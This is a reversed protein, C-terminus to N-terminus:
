ESVEYVDGTIRVRYLCTYDAGHNTVARVVVDQVAIGMESLNNEIAHGQVYNSHNIDYHFRSILVYTNDMAKGRTRSEHQEPAFIKLSAEKADNYQAKDRIRVWLELDRPAAEIDLTGSKPIHEVTWYKPYFKRGTMFGIQARPTPITDTVTRSAPPPAACWCDGAELWPELVTAAPNSIRQVRFKRYVWSLISQSKHYTPSTLYPNVVAGLNGSAFNVSFLADRTNHLLNLGAMLDVQLNPWSNFYKAISKDQSDRLMKAMMGSFQAELLEAKQKGESSLREYNEDLQRKFEQFTVVEKDRISADFVNETFKRLHMENIALFSGWSPADARIGLGQEAREKLAQWFTEPFDLAGNKMPVVISEPLLNKLEDMTTEHLASTNKLYKIQAELEHIRVNLPSNKFPSIHKAFMSMSEFIDATCAPLKSPNTYLAACSSPGFLQLLLSLTMVFGFMLLMVFAIRQMLNMETWSHYTMRQRRIPLPVNPATAFAVPPDIDGIVDQPTGYRNGADLFTTRDTNPPMRNLWNSVNTNSEEEVNGEQDEQVPSLTAKRGRGASKAKAPAKKGVKKKSKGTEIAEEIEEAAESTTREGSFNQAFAGAGEGGKLDSGMDATAAAGYSNSQRTGVTPAQFSAKTASKKSSAVSAPALVSEASASTARRSSRRPTAM